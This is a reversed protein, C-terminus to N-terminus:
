NTSTSASCNNHKNGCLPHLNSPKRAASFLQLEIAAPTLILWCANGPQRV